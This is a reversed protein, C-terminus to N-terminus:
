IDSFHHWLECSEGMNGGWGLSGLKSIKADLKNLLLAQHELLEHRFQKLGNLPSQGTRLRCITLQREWAEAVEVPQEMNPKNRYTEMSELGAQM